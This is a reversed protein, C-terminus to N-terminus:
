NKSGGSRIVNGSRDIWLQQENAYVETLTGNFCAAYIFSGDLAAEGYQNFFSWGHKTKIPVPWSNCSRIDVVPESLNTFTDPLLWSDSGSKRIALKGEPLTEIRTINNFLVEGSTNIVNWGSSSSFDMVRAFGNKFTDASLFNHAIVTENYRNIYGWLGDKRVPALEDSFRGAEGYMPPIVWEGNADIFGWNGGSVQGFTNIEGGRNASALGDSFDRLYSAEALQTIRGDSNVIVWENNMKARAICDNMTFAQQFLQDTIPNGDIDIYTWVPNRLITRLMVPATGCNFDGADLFQPEIVLEGNQDFYGYRDQLLIIYRDASSFALSVSVGLLLYLYILYAAKM